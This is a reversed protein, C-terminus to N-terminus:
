VKSYMKEKNIFFIFKSFKSRLFILTVRDVFFEKFFEKKLHNIENQAEPNKAKLGDLFKPKRKKPVESNDTNVKDSFEVKRKRKDVGDNLNESFASTIFVSLIITSFILKM